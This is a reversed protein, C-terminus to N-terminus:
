VNRSCKQRTRLVRCSDVVMKSVDESSFNLITGHEQFGMVLVRNKTKTETVVAHEKGDTLRLRLRVKFCAMSTVVASVGMRLALMLSHLVEEWNDEANHSNEIMLLSSSENAFNRLSVSDLLASIM